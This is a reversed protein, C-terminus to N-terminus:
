FKVSLIDQELITRHLYDEKQMKQMKEKQEGIATKRRIDYLPFLMKWIWILSFTFQHYSKIIVVIVTCVRFNQLCQSRNVPVTIASIAFIFPTLLSRLQNPLLNTTRIRRNMKKRPRRLRIKNHRRCRKRRHLTHNRRISSMNVAMLRSRNFIGPMLNQLQRIRITFNRRFLNRRTRRSIIFATLRLIQRLRLHYIKWKRSLLSRQIRQLLQRLNM